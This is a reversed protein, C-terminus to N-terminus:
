IQGAIGLLKVGRSQLVQSPKLDFYQLINNRNPKTQFRIIQTLQSLLMSRTGNKWCKIEGVQSLAPTVLFLNLHFIIAMQTKSVFIREVHNQRCIKSSSPSIDRNIKLKSSRFTSVPQVSWKGRYIFQLVESTQSKLKSSIEKLRVNRLM